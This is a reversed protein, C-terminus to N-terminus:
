IAIDAVSEMMKDMLRLVEVLTVFHTTFTNDLKLVFGKMFLNM